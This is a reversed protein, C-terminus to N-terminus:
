HEISWVKQQEFEKDAESLAVVDGALIKSAKLLDAQIIVRRSARSVSDFSNALGVIFTRTSISM